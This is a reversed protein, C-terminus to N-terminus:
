KQMDRLQKSEPFVVSITSKYSIINIWYHQISNRDKRLHCSRRNCLLKGIREFKLKLKNWVTGEKFKRNKLEKIKKYILPNSYYFLNNRNGFNECTKHNSLKQVKTVNFPRDTASSIKTSLKHENKLSSLKSGTKSHNLFYQVSTDVGFITFLILNNGSIFFGLRNIFYPSSSSEINKKYFHLKAGIIKWQISRTKQVNGIDVTQM